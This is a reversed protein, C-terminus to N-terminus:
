QKIIVSEVEKVNEKDKVNEKVSNADKVNLKNLERLKKSERRRLFYKLRLRFVKRNVMFGRLTVDDMLWGEKSARERYDFCACPNKVRVDKIPIERECKDCKKQEDM